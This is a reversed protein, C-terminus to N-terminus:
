KIGWKISVVVSHSLQAGDRRSVVRFANRMPTNGSDKVQWAKRTPILARCTLNSRDAANVENSYFTLTRRDRV